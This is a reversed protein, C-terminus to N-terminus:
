PPPRLAAAHGPKQGPTKRHKKDSVAPKVFSPPAPKPQSKLQQRLQTVQRRLAANHEILKQHKQQLLALQRSHDQRQSLQQRLIQNEERLRQNENWLFDNSTLLRRGDM